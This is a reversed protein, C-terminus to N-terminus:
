IYYEDVFNAWTHKLLLKEKLRRSLTRWNTRCELDFLRSPTVVQQGAEGELVL